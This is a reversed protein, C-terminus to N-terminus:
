PAATRLRERSKRQILTGENEIISTSFDSTCPDESLSTSLLALKWSSKPGKVSGIEHSFNVSACSNGAEMSAVNGM